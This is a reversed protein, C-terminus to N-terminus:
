SAKALEPRLISLAAEKLKKPDREGGAAVTLIRAAMDSQHWKNRDREPVDRWAENLAVRMVEVTVTDYAAMYAEQLIANIRITLHDDATRDAV